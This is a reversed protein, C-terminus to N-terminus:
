TTADARTIMVTCPANRVVYDSVSGLLARKIGGRGRSGMVLANADLESAFACIASGPDGDLVRKEADGIGIATLTEDLVQDAELQQRRRQEDLEEASMVGGAFGTGTVDMEDVGDIVTVVVTREAPRLLALGAALARLAPESGDTCLVTTTTM